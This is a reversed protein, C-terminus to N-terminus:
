FPLDMRNEKSHKEYFIILEEKKIKGSASQIITDYLIDHNCEFSYKNMELFVLSSALAVRKNGDLFPHNQCIHFVYAAAMSPISKHLYVGDFSQKPISIASILLNMDRIGNIGGYNTIQDNLIFIVEDLSLFEIIKNM